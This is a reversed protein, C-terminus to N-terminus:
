LRGLSSTGTFRPQRPDLQLDDTNGLDKIFQIVFDSGGAPVDPFMQNDDATNKETRLGIERNSNLRQEGRREENQANEM